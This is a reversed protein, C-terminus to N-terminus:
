RPEKQRSCFFARFWFFSPCCMFVLRSGRYWWPSALERGFLGESKPEAPLVYIALAVFALSVLLSFLQVWRNGLGRTLFWIATVALLVVMILGGAAIDFRPLWDFLNWHVELGVSAGYLTLSVIIWGAILLVNRRMEGLKGWNDPCSVVLKDTIKPM